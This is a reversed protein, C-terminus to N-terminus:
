RRRATRARSIRQAPHDVRDRGRRRRGGARRLFLQPPQLEGRINHGGPTVIDPGRISMRKGDARCWDGDIADARANSGFLVLGALAMLSVLQIKGHM